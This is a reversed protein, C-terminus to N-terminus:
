VKTDEELVFNSFAECEPSTPALGGQCSDGQIWEKKGNRESYHKLYRGNKNTGPIQLIIFTEGQYRVLLADKICRLDM